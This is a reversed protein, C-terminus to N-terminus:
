AVAYMCISIAVESNAISEAEYSSAIEETVVAEGTVTTEDTVAAKGTDAM